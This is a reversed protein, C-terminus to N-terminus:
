EVETHESYIQRYLVGVESLYSRSESPRYMGLAALTEDKAAQVM